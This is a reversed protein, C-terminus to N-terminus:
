RHFGPDQKPDGDLRLAPHQFRKRSGAACAYVNSHRATVCDSASRSLTGKNFKKFLLTGTSTRVSSSDVLRFVLSRHGSPKPRIVSKSLEITAETSQTCNHPDVLHITLNDGSAEISVFQMFHVVVTGACLSLCCQDIRPVIIPAVQQPPMEDPNAVAHTTDSIILAAIAEPFHNQQAVSPM